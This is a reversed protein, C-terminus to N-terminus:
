RMCMDTSCIICSRPKLSVRRAMISSHPLTTRQIKGRCLYAVVSGMKMFPNQQQKKRNRIYFPNFYVFNFM